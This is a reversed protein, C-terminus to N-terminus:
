FVAKKGKKPSRWKPQSTKKVFDVMREKRLQVTWQAMFICMNQEESVHNIKKHRAPRCVVSVLIM